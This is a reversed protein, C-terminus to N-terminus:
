TMSSFALGSSKLRSGAGFARLAFASFAAGAAFAGFAALGAFAAAPGPLNAAIRSAASRPLNGGTGSKKASKCLRLRARSACNTAIASAPSTAPSSAKGILGL